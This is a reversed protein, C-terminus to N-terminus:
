TRDRRRLTVAGLIGGLSSLILFLFFMMVMGMILVVALGQPTKLYNLLPQVQPDSNRAMAQEVAQMLAARLDGGSRFVTTEIATFISFCAFGLLGSLAGLRAGLGYTLDVHNLRRRYFHVCLFGAALMGLGFSAGLPVIMLVAAILGAQAAAPLAQPWVLGTAQVAPSYRPVNEDATEAVVAPEPTALAVRIQPANCHRCFPTGEAIVAGCQYCSHEMRIELYLM